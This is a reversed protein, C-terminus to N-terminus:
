KEFAPHIIVSVRDAWSVEKNPFPLARRVSSVGAASLM